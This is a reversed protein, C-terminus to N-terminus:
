LKVDRDFTNMTEELKDKEQHNYSRMQEVTGVESYSM